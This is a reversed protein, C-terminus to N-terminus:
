KAGLRRYAGAIQIGLGKRSGHHYSPNLKTESNRFTAHEFQEVWRGHLEAAHCGPKPFIEQLARAFKEQM